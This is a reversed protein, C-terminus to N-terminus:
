AEITSTQRRFAAPTIDYRRSFHRTLHAQDTFGSLCAIQKTPIATESLLRRARDLRRELVYAYPALGFTKKFRRAFTCAGLNLADAMIELTLSTQLHAEIFEEVLRRQRMSLEGSRPAPRLSISAYNRLLHVVLQRAVSDVYLSGGLGPDAAEAMIAQMAATMLPDDTRLIDALTVEDVDHGTVDRAVGCVFDQTLYVHAVTVDETWHWHSKQSRTLLSVSGPGCTTQTWRGDFRREMPTVGTRYGVLMFDRMAPVEVDQGKYAYARLGVGQWGLGDSRSLIKGPVWLPLDEPPVLESM